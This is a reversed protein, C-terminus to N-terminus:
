ESLKRPSLVMQQQGFDFSGRQVNQHHWGSLLIRPNSVRAASDGPSKWGIRKM